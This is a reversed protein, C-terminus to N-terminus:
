AAGGALIKEMLLCPVGNGIIKCALQRSEPLEYFDPVSQFRALARPTMRVVRGHQFLAARPLKAETVVTFSPDEDQRTAILSTRDGARNIMKGEVLLAKVANGGQNQTLIFCPKEDGVVPMTRMDTPHVLLARPMNGVRETSEVTRSPEHGERVSFSNANGGPVLWARIGHKAASAAVTFMPSESGLVTVTSFNANGRGDVIFAKPETIPRRMMCAAVTTSPEDAGRVTAPRASNMAEIFCTEKIYGPLRELQWDAFRSEPLTPILDEIAQYWGQWPQSEPLPAPFDGHVARLILRRRTQPVGFDASNLVDVQVWYGMGWLTDVIKQFGAAKRYGEVNELTISEPRLAQIAEICAAAIEDNPNRDGKTKKAVSFDQCPPSMHLHDVRDVKGWDFGIVSEAFVRHKLNHEAVEAIAPELEIGWALEYGAQMAGIDALGGGTFLSAFTKSM